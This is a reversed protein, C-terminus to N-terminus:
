LDIRALGLTPPSGNLWAAVGDNGVRVFDAWSIRRPDDVVRMPAAYPAGDTDLGVADLLDFRSVIGTYGTLLLASDPGLGVHPIPGAHDPTVSV